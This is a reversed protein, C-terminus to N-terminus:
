QGVTDPLVTIRTPTFGADLVMQRITAETPLDGETVLRVKKQELSVDVKKFLKNKNFTRQLSDVCFACTMGHVEIELTRAQAPPLLGITLIAAVLFQRM